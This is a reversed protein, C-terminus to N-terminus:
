SPWRRDARCRNGARAMAAVGAMWAPELARFDSGIQVGGDDAFAIGGYSERMTTPLSEVLMDIGQVLWPDPLAAQPCRAIGAAHHAPLSTLHVIQVL